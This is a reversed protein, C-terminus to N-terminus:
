LNQDAAERKEQRRLGLGFVIGVASFVAALGMALRLGTAMDSKVENIIQDFIEIERAEAANQGSKTTPPTLQNQFEYLQTIEEQQTATLDKESIQNVQAAVSGLVLGTIMAGGLAGALLRVSVQTGSAVGSLDKPVDALLM